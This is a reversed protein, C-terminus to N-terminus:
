ALHPGMCASLSAVGRANCSRCVGPCVSGWCKRKCGPQASGLMCPRSAPATLVCSGGQECQQQDSVPREGVCCGSHPGTVQKLPNNTVVVVSDTYPIWMYRLHKNERLLRAHDRQIQRADMVRTHELLKHAPICQLTVQLDPVSGNASGSNFPLHGQLKHASM